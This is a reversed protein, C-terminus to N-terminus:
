ITFIMSHKHQTYLIRYEQKGKIASLGFNEHWEKVRTNDSSMNLEVRLGELNRNTGHRLWKEFDDGLDQRVKRGGATAVTVRAMGPQEWVKGRFINALEELVFKNTTGKPAVKAMYARIASTLENGPPLICGDTYLLLSKLEEGLECKGLNGPAVLFRTVGFLAKVGNQAATNLMKRALIDRPAKSRAVSFFM